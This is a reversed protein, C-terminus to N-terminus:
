QIPFDQHEPSGIAERTSLARARIEVSETLLGEAKLLDFVREKLENYVDDM